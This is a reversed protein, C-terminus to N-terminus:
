EKMSRTKRYNGYQYIQEIKYSRTSKVRRETMILFMMILILIELEVMSFIALRVIRLLKM